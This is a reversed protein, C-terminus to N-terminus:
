RCLQTRDTISSPDPVCKAGSLVCKTAWKGSEGCEPIEKEVWGATAKCLSSSVDLKCTVRHPYRKTQQGDCNYDFSGDGRDQGDWHGSSPYAEDNHDWCDTRNLSEHDGPDGCSCRLWSSSKPDGYGDGDGDYYINKCGLAGDEDTEGDGDNDVGDCKEPETTTGDTSAEVASGDGSSIVDAVSADAASGDENSIVDQIGGDNSSDVDGHADMFPADALSADVDKSVTFADGGGCGAQSLSLCAVLSPLAVILLFSSSKM